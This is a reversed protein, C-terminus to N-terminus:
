YKRGEVVPWRWDSSSPLPNIRPHPHSTERRTWSAGCQRSISSHLQFYCPMSFHSLSAALFACQALARTAKGNAALGEPRCYSECDHCLITAAGGLKNMATEISNRLSRKTPPCLYGGILAGSGFVTCFGPFVVIRRTKGHRTSIDYCFLILVQAVRSM